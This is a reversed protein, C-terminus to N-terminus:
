TIWHKLAKTENIFSNTNISIDIDSDVTAFGNVFSGFLLFEVKREALENDYLYQM